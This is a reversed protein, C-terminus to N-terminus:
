EVIFKQIKTFENNKIRVFYVGSSMESVDIKKILIASNIISFYDSKVVEGFQNILEISYYSNTKSASISLNIEKQAPNPFLNFSIPNNNEKLGVAGLNSMTAFKTNSQGSVITTGTELLPFKSAASFWMYRTEFQDIVLLGGALIIHISTTMKIRLVNPFTAGPLILTGTGDAFTNVGGNCLGAGFTGSAVTGILTDYNNTNFNFPFANFIVGSNSLTITATAPAVIGDIQYSTTGGSYYNFSSSDNQAVDSSSFTAGDPTASPALYTKGHLPTLQMANAFNWTQSSGANGPAAVSSTDLRYYSQVDGVNPINLSTISFQAKTFTTTLILVIFFYKKKM